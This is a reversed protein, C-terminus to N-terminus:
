VAVENLIVFSQGDTTQDENITFVPTTGPRNSIQFKYTIASTSAPSDRLIITHRDRVAVATAGTATFGNGLVGSGDSVPTFITSYAGAGIKRQVRIGGFHGQQAASLFYSLNAFLDIVSTSSKPTIAIEWTVGLASLVDTYTTGTTSTQYSNASYVSQVVHGPAYLGGTNVRAQQAGGASMAWEDTGVRYLGNNVDDKFHLGPTGVSGDPAGVGVNVNLTGYFTGNATSAPGLLMVDTGDSAEILVGGSGQARIKNNVVLDGLIESLSTNGDGFKAADTGNSANIIVGASTNAEIDNTKLKGVTDTGSVSASNAAIDGSVTMDSGSMAVTSSVIKTGDYQLLRNTTLADSSPFQIWASGNYVNLLDTTTNYILLGETPTAIADRQVTTMRPPLFGKTTSQLNIVANATLTGGLGIASLAASVASAWNTADDGWATDDTQPYNFSNGNASLSVSM